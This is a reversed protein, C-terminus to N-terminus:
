FNGKQFEELTTVGQGILALCAARLPSMGARRAEREIEGPSGGAAVLAAVEPTGELVEFLAVRGAYGPSLTGCAECGGGQSTKLDLAEDATLGMMKLIRDTVPTTKRCTGCIRRVLRQNVILKLRSALTAADLQHWLIAAPTQSARRAQIAAVVLCSGATELALGAMGPSQIEPLFVVESGPV